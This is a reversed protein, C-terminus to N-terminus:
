ISLSEAISAFSEFFEIGTGLINLFIGAFSIVHTDVAFIYINEFIFLLFRCVM